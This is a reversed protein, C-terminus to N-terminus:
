DSGESSREREEKGSGKAAGKKGTTAASIRDVRVETFLQRHGRKRHYGKKPRYKFVVIKRGKGHGLVTGEVKVKGAEPGVLVEGEGGAMLVREFIIKGGVPIDLKEVRIVSGSEVRYQKGGTEIVAYM